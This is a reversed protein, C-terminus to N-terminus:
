LSAYARYSQTRTADPVPSQTQKKRSMPRSPAAAKSVKIAGLCDERPRFKPPARREKNDREIRSTIVVVSLEAFWRGLVWNPSNVVIGADLGRSVQHLPITRGGGELSTQWRIVRPTEFHTVSFAQM